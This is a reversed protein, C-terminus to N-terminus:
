PTRPHAQRRAEVERLRAAEAAATSFEVSCDRSEVCLLKVVLGPASWEAAHIGDSAIDTVATPLGFRERISAAVEAKPAGTRVKIRELLGNAAIQVEFSSYAAWAPRTNPAPLM